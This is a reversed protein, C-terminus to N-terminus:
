KKKTVQALLDMFESNSSGRSDTDKAIRIKPGKRGLILAIQLEDKDIKPILKLVADLSIQQHEDAELGDIWFSWKNLGVGHKKAMLCATQLLAM